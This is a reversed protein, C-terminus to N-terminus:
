DLKISYLKILQAVTTNASSYTTEVTIVSQETFKCKWIGTDTIFGGYSSTNPYATTATRNIQYGDLVDCIGTTNTFNVTTEAETSTTASPAKANVSTSFILYTGAELTLIATRSTKRNGYSINRDSEFSLRDYASATADSYLTDLADSVNDVVFDTNTPAYLVDKSLIGATAYVSIGGFVIAGCLFCFLSNILNKKM